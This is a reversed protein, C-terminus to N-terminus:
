YSVNLFFNTSYIKTRCVLSDFHLKDAHKLCPTNLEIFVSKKIKSIKSCSELHIEINKKELFFIKSM